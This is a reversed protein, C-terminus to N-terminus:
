RNARLPCSFAFCINSYTCTCMFLYMSTPGAPVHLLPFIYSCVYSMTRVYRNAWPSMAVSAFSVLAPTHVHMYRGSMCKTYSSQMQAITAKENPLLKIRKEKRLNYM